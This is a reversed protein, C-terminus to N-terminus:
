HPCCGSTCGSSSSGAGSTYGTSVSRRTSNTSEPLDEPYFGRLPDEKSSREETSVEGATASGATPSVLQGSAIRPSQDGMAVSANAPVRNNPAAWKSGPIANAATRCGLSAAAITGFAVTYVLSSRVMNSIM